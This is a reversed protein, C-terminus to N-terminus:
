DAKRNPLKFIHSYANQWLQDQVCGILSRHVAGDLISELAGDSILIKHSQRAGICVPCGDDISYNSLSSSVWGMRVPLRNYKWFHSIREAVSVRKYPYLISFNSLHVDHSSLNRVFIYVGSKLDDGKGELGYVMDVKIKPRSQYVNWVFVMTSLCAAYIALYDTAKM